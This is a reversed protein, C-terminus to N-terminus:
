LSCSWSLQSPASCWVGFWGCILPAKETEAFSVNLLNDTSAGATILRAKPLRFRLHPFRLESIYTEGDELSKESHCKREGLFPHSSFSDYVDDSSCKPAVTRWPQRKGRCTKHASVHIGKTRYSRELFTQVTILRLRQTERNPLTCAIKKDLITFITAAGASFSGHGMTM